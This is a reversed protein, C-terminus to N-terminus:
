YFAVKKVLKNLNNFGEMNRNLSSALLICECEITRKLLSCDEKSHYNLSVVPLSVPM